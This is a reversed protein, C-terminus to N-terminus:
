WPDVPLRDEVHDESYGLREAIAEFRARRDGDITVDCTGLTQLLLRFALDPDVATVCAELAPVASRLAPAGAHEPRDTLEPAAQRVERLVLDASETRAPSVLPVYAPDVDKLREQCVEAIQELWTRGDADFDDTDNWRGSAARWLATVADDPLASRSLRQVDELLVAAQSGPVLGADAHTVREINERLTGEDRRGSGYFVAALVPLGFRGYAFDRRGPDVPPWRVTLEEYVASGPYALRDGIALLRDYQDAEIPVAYAKAARLFMRFGLDADADRVLRHLAAVIGPVAVRRELGAATLDIEATVARSLEEEPVVPGAEVRAGGDFGGPEAGPAPCVGAVRRLWARMDTGEEVPDFCGRTAALWVTHVVTDPLRSDLLLRADRGLQEDEDETAARRALALVTPGDLRLTSRSCVTGALGSLGFDAEHDVYHIPRTRHPM